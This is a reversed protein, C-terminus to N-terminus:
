EDGRYQECCSDQNDPYHTDFFHLRHIYAEKQRHEKGSCQRDKARFMGNNAEHLTRGPFLKIFEDQYALVIQAAITFSPRVDISIIGKRSEGPHQM